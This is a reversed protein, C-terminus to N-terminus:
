GPDPSQIGAPPLSAACSRTLRCQGQQVRDPPVPQHNKRGSQGTRGHGPNGRAKTNLGCYLAMARKFNAGDSAWWERCVSLPLRWCTWPSNSIKRSVWCLRIVLRNTIM